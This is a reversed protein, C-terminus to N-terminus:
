DIGDRNDDRDRDNDSRHNNNNNSSSNSKDGTISSPDNDDIIDVVIANCDVHILIDVVGDLIKAVTDPETAASFLLAAPPPPSRIVDEKKVTLVTEASVLTTGVVWM